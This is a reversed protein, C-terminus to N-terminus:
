IGLEEDTVIEDKPIVEESGIDDWKCVRRLMVVPFSHIKENYKAVAESYAMRANLRSNEAAEIQSLLKQTHINSRLEPYAEIVAKFDGSTKIRKGGNRAEAFKEYLAIESSRYKDAVREAKDILAASTENVSVIDSKTRLFISKLRSISNFDIIVQVAFALVIAIIVMLLNYKAPIEDETTAAAFIFIVLLQSVIYAGFLKLLQLLLNGKTNRNM